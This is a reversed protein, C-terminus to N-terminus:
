DYPGNLGLNACFRFAEDSIVERINEVMETMRDLNKSLRMTYDDVDYDDGQVSSLLKNEEM